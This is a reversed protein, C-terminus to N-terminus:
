GLLCSLYGFIESLLTGVLKMIVKMVCMLTKADKTLLKVIFVVLDVVADVLMKLQQIIGDALGSLADVLSKTKLENLLLTVSNLVERLKKLVDQLKAVTPDLFKIVCQTSPAANVLFVNTKVLAVCEHSKSDLDSFVEGILPLKGLFAVINSVTTNITDVLDQLIEGILAIVTSVIGDLSINLYAIIANLAEIVNGLIKALGGLLGSVPILGQTSIVPLKVPLEVGSSFVLVTMFIILTPRSM